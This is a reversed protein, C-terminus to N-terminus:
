SKGKKPRVRRIDIKQYPERYYEVAGGNVNVWRVTFGDPTVGSIDLLAKTATQKARKAAREAEGADQYVKVAALVEEDTLVGEVDTDRGRCGTYFECFRECFERPKDRSAEEGMRVAYVADGLWEDAEEVVAMDFREFTVYPDKDKGGRDIFVNGVLLHEPDLLGAQICGLGYLHKQFKQQLDPGSKRVVDLGNKTKIDWVTNRTVDIVDSHGLLTLGSPLAVTLEQQTIVNPDSAKWAAETADGVATGLFAELYGREDTRPEEVIMRRVKERCHGVDSVGIRNSASQQSRETRASTSDILDTIFLSIDDPTFVSM